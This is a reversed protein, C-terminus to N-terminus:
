DKFLVKLRMTLDCKISDLSVNREYKCKRKISRCKAIVISSSNDRVVEVAISLDEVFNM